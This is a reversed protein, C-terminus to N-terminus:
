CPVPKSDKINVNVANFMISFLSSLPALPIDSSSSLSRERYSAMHNRRCTPVRGCWLKWLQRPCGSMPEWWVLMFGTHSWQHWGWDIHSQFLCYAKLLLCDPAQVPHTPTAPKCWRWWGLYKYCKHAPIKWQVNSLIETWGQCSSWNKKGGLHRFGANWCRSLSFLVCQRYGCELVVCVCSKQNSVWISLFMCDHQLM